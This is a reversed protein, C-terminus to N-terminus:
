KRIDHGAMHHHLINMENAGGQIPGYCRNWGSDSGSFPHDQDGCHLQVLINQIYASTGLAM